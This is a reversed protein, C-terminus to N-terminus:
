ATMEKPVILGIKSRAFIQGFASMTPGAMSVFAALERRRRMVGGSAAAPRLALAAGCARDTQEVNLNITESTGGSDREFTFLACGANGTDNSASTGRATTSAATITRGGREVGGCVVIDGSLISAVTVPEPDAGTASSASNVIGVAQDIDEYYMALGCSSTGTDFSSLVGDSMAAIMTENATYIGISTDPTADADQVVRAPSQGGLSVTAPFTAGFNFGGAFILVLYRNSGAPITITAGQDAPDDGLDEDSNFAM